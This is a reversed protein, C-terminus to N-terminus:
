PSSPSPTLSRPTSCTTPAGPSSTRWGGRGGTWRRRRSTRRTPVTWWSTQGGAGYRLNMDKPLKLFINKCGKRTYKSGYIAWIARRREETMLLTGLYFTKAYEECIEGCRAYAEGLGGRPADLERAVAPPAQQQQQSPRLQRKLLAAQKVVVDYVKQESSVVAVAADGGPSVTLSSYVPSAASRGGAEGPEGVGLCGYKLSCLVWRPRQQKKKPLLRSCQFGDRTAGDGAALGPSSAAGLLLTVTTAMHQM